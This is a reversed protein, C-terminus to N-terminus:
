QRFMRDLDESFKTQSFESKMLDRARNGIASLKEPESFALLIANAIESPKTDSILITEGENFYEKLGSSEQTLCPIGFSAADLVKNVLVTQAKKTNGFTGFALDTNELLYETLKGNNFSYDKSFLVNPHEKLFSFKEQFEDWNKGGSAFFAFSGDFGNELLIRCAEAINEFGHLPNGERGWWAITPRQSEGSLYPRNALPRDPVVLPRVTSHLSDEGIDLIKSYYSREAATLFITPNGALFALCDRRKLKMAEVSDDRFKKRDVIMTEFSSIYVDVIIKKRFYRNLRYVMRSYFTVHTMPQIVVIDSVMYAFITFVVRLIVRPLRSGFDCTDVILGYDQSREMFYAAWLSPRYAAKTSGLLLATNKKRHSM